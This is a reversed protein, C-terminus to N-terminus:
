VKAFCGPTASVDARDLMSYAKREEEELGIAPGVLDGVTGAIKWPAKWASDTRSDWPSVFYRWLCPCSAGPPRGDVEPNQGHGKPVNPTGRPKM